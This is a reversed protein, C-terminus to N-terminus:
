EDCADRPLAAAFGLALAVMWPGGVKPYFVLYDFLQHLALAVTAAFAGLVWPSAKLSARLSVLAAALFAITASFLLVGGEALSQLYWSNAHTRVGYVLDGVRLEFNGAGIGLLPHTRFMRWAASWLEARNGVGGAYTSETATLRFIGASHVLVAWVAALAVGASLGTWLPRLRALVATGECWLLVGIVVATGFWGGRSFTLVLTVGSVALAVSTLRSRAAIAHAGLLAIAVELYGALQNPGELVGAIRPIVATGLKLGSPAGILEQALATIAVIIVSCAFARAVLRDDRDFAFAAYVTAFLLAYELDKFTERVVPAHATAPVFTLLTVAALAGFALLMRRIDRGRFALAARPHAALGVVAGLLVVKPFTITTSFVSHYWAFPQVFALAAAGFASRRMTVIATIVFAAVFAVAALSDLPVPVPFRDVVPQYHM